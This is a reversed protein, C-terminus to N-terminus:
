QTCVSPDQVVIDFDEDIFGRAYAFDLFPLIDFEPYTAYIEFYDRRNGYESNCGYVIFFSQFNSGIINGSNVQNGVTIEFEGSEGSQSLFSFTQQDNLFQTGIKLSVDINYNLTGGDRSM